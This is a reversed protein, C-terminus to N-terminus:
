PKPNKINFLLAYFIPLLILTIITGFTLGGIVVVALSGYMPDPILPLMALITTFSVMIVPRTRNIISQIIAAYPEV